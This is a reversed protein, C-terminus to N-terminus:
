RNERCLALRRLTAYVNPDMGNLKNYVSTISVSIDQFKYASNVRDNCLNELEPGKLATNEPVRASKELRLM